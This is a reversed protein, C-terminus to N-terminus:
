CKTSSLQTVSCAIELPLVLFHRKSAIRIPNMSTKGGFDTAHNSCRYMWGCHSRFCARCFPTLHLNLSHERLACEAELSFRCGSLMAVTAGFQVRLRLHTLPKCPFRSKVPSSCSSFSRFAGEFANFSCCITNQSLFVITRHGSSSIAFFSTSRWSNSASIVKM